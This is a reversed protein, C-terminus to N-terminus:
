PFDKKTVSRPSNDEGDNAGKTKKPAMMEGAPTFNASTSAMEVGGTPCRGSSAIAITEATTTTMTASKAASTM